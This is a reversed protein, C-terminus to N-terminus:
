DYSRGQVEYTRSTWGLIVQLEDVPVATPEGENM